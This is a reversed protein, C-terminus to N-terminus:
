GKKIPKKPVPKEDKKKTNKKNQEDLKQENHNGDKDLLPDEVPPNGLSPDVGKMDIKENFVKDVYVWKGNTWAFGEYDGDPVYTWPSEPENTESILHYVLIMNKDEDFNMTTSAEKKYEIAFRRQPKRKLPDKDFVFFSQGGFVPQGQLDFSLVDIWKKNTRYSNGDFGFLTYYNKGNFKTQIINYYVAGIWTNKDRSSDIPNDAFESYDKLPVLKLSGDTTRFQIAGRQRSFAYENQYNLQWTFIRFSSDPAYIHSVGQVSDFPFEFSYKIQLSRILTKIFISDKRMRDETAEDTLFSKALVKLSDEKKYLSKLDSAAIKQQADASHILFFFITLLILNKVVLQM